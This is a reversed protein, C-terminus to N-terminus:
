IANWAFVVDSHVVPESPVVFQPRPMPVPVLGLMAASPPLKWTANWAFVVCRHVTPAAPFLSQFRPIIGRRAEGRGGHRTAGAHRPEEPNSRHM